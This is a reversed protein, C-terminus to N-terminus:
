ATKQYCQTNFGQLIVAGSISFCLNLFTIIFKNMLFSSENSINDDGPMIDGYLFHYM